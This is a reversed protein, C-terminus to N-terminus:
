RFRNSSCEHAADTGAEAYSTATLDSVPINLETAVAVELQLINTQAYFAGIKTLLRRGAIDEKFLVHMKAGRVLCGTPMKTPVATPLESPTATTPAETPPVTPTETPTATPMDTPTETPTATPLASPEHTVPVETPLESPTTTPTATPEHTPSQSPSFSPEDTTTPSLTTPVDTPTETPVATPHESPAHTPKVSTPSTTTPTETPTMSPEDTPEHTPIATPSDTTPGNTPAGTCYIEEIEIRILPFDPLPQFEGREWKKELEHGLDISEVGREGAVGLGFKFNLQVQTVLADALLAHHTPTHTLTHTQPIHPCTCTRSRPARDGVSEPSLAPQVKTPHWIRGGYLAGYNLGAENVTHRTVQIQSPMLHLAQAIRDHITRQEADGFHAVDGGFDLHLHGADFCPGTQPPLTPMVLTEDAPPEVMTIVAEATPARTTATTRTQTRSTVVNLVAVIPPETTDPAATLASSFIPADTPTHTAEASPHDTPALTPVDTPVETPPMTPTQAM